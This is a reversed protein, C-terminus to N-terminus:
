RRAFNRSERVFDVIEKTSAKIKICKVDLPSKNIKESKLCFTSGDKRKILVEGEKRALDLLMALKQRAQSYTFITM